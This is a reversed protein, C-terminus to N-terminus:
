IETNIKLKGAYFETIMASRTLEKIIDATMMQNNIGNIFHEKLTQDVKYKCM